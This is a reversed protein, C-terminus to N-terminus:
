DLLNRASQLLGDAIAEPNITLQGSEIAKQIKQVKQSDIDASADHLRAMQRAKDSLTVSVEATSQKSATPAKKHQDAKDLTSIPRNNPPTIKLFSEPLRPPLLRTQAISLPLM